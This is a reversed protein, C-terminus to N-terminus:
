GGTTERSKEEPVSFLSQIARREFSMRYQLMLDAMILLERRCEFPRELNRALLAFFREAPTVSLSAFLNAEGKPRVKEVQAFFDDRGREKGLFDLMEKSCFFDSAFFEECDHLADVKKLLAEYTSRKLGSLTHEETWPSVPALTKLWALDPVERLSRAFPAIDDYGITTTRRDTLFNCLAVVTNTEEHRYLEFRRRPWQPDREQRFPTHEGDSLFLQLFEPTGARGTCIVLRPRYRRLRAKVHKEFINTARSRYEGLTKVGSEELAKKVSSRLSSGPGYLFFSNEWDNHTTLSLVGSNMQFGHGGWAFIRHTPVYKATLERRDADTKTAELQSLFDGDTLGAVLASSLTRYEYDLAGFNGFMTITALDVGRVAAREFSEWKNRGGGFELGCIWVPSYPNGGNVDMALDPGDERLVAFLDPYSTQASSETMATEDWSGFSFLNENESTLGM